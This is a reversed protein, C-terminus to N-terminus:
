LSKAPVLWAVLAGLVRLSNSDGDLGHLTALYTQGGTRFRFLYHGQYLGFLGRIPRALLGSRGGVTVARGRFPRLLLPRYYEITFHLYCCPRLRWSPRLPREGYSFSM